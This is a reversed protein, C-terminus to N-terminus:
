ALPRQRVLRDALFHAVHMAQRGAGDAIQHRCSTGDALVIADPSQRISPLLSAEAMQMSVEHHAAEYGFSGAMGCCSSEILQPKLGPVLKLVDLIPSVAGFAKQHCHGHVLVPKDCAALPVSFRGAGIERAVFEEFLLAQAAVQQAADGLGLVLAEDRLTLLCSPELGVIAIGAQAFPQLAAVLAGAEAKARDVMGTALYTRGCCLHGRPVSVDFGAAELVEM